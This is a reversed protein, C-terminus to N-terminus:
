EITLFCRVKRGERGIFTVNTLTGKLHRIRDDREDAEVVVGYKNGEGRISRTVKSDISIM